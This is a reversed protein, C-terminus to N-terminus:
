EAIGTLSDMQLRSLHNFATHGLTLRLHEEARHRATLWVKKPTTETPQDLSPETAEPPTVEKVFLEVADTLAKQEIQNLAAVSQLPHSDANLTPNFLTIFFPWAEGEPPEPLEVEHLLVPRADASSPSPSPSDSALPTMESQPQATTATTKYRRKVPTTMSPEAHPRPAAAVVPTPSAQAIRAKETQEPVLPQAVTQHSSPPALGWDLCVGVVIVPILLLREM